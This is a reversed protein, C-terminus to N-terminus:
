VGVSEASASFQRITGRLTVTTDIRRRWDRTRKTVEVFGVQSWYSTPFHDVISIFTPMMHAQMGAIRTMRTRRKGLTIPLVVFDFVFWYESFHAVAPWYPPPEFIPLRVRAASWLKM